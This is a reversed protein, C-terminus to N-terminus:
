GAKSKRYTQQGNPEWALIHGSRISSLSSEVPSAATVDDDVIGGKGRRQASLTGGRLDETGVYSSNRMKGKGQPAKNEAIWITHFCRVSCDMHVGHM